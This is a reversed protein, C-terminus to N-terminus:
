EKWRVCEPNACSASVRGSRVVVYYSLKAKGCVPCDIEGCQFRPPTPCDFGSELLRKAEMRERALRSAEVVARRAIKQRWVEKVKREIRKGEVFWRWAVPRRDFLKM